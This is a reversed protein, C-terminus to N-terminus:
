LKKIIKVALREQKSLKQKNKEEGGEEKKYQLISSAEQMLADIDASSVHGESKHAIGPAKKYGEFDPEDEMRLLKYFDYSRMTPVGGRVAYSSLQNDTTVVLMDRQAKEDIMTKIVDDATSRWGSYITAIAGKKEETPRDVSGGDYVIAITHNKKRAYDAAQAHFWAREKQAIEEKKFLSKLLNYGDIIIHM